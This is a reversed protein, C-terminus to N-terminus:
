ELLLQFDTELGARGCLDNQLLSFGAREEDRGSPGTDLVANSVNKRLEYDSTKAQCALSPPVREQDLIKTIV